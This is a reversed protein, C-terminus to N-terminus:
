NNLLEIAKLLWEDKNESLGEITSKIKYDIEVGKRQTISMDPYFVGTGTLMTKYNDFIRFTTTNGDAGSTRSGVTIVKDGTQLCMVAYEGHSQTNENVLLVVKGKYKRPANTGCTFPEQMVYKGPYSLLPYIIRCHIYVASVENKNNAKELKPIINVLEKDWDFKGKSVQPHYYKLFGWVKALQVLKDTQRLEEQAFLKAGLLLLIFLIFHIRM